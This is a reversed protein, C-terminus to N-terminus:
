SGKLLFAGICRWICPKGEGTSEAPSVLLSESGMYVGLTLRAEDGIFKVWAAFTAVWCRRREDLTAERRSLRRSDRWSSLM